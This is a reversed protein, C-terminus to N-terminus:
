KVKKEREGRLDTWIWVGFKEIKATFLLLWGEGIM